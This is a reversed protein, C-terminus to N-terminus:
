LTHCLCGMPVPTHGCHSSHDIPDGCYCMEPDIRMLCRDCIQGKIFAVWHTNAAKGSRHGFLPREPALALVESIPIEIESWKFILTGHPKLVRFCERFGDQIVPKWNTPLAGYYKTVNGSLSARVIQPPDFVVLWFSENAFPLERFDCQIDPKVEIDKDAFKTGKPRFKENRQDVYLCRPDNKDFWMMRTGCSVDLVAGVPRNSANGKPGRDETSTVPDDLPASEKSFIDM